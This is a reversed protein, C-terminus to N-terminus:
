RPESVLFWQQGANDVPIGSAVAVGDNVILPGPWASWEAVPQSLNTTTLLTLQSARDESLPRGDATRIVLQVTNRLFPPSLDQRLPTGATDPETVLFWRQAVGEVVIECLVVGNSPVLVGPWTSWIVSGQSLNTAFVLSMDAVREPTIPEGGTAGVTLQMMRESSFLPSDLTLDPISLDFCAAQATSRVYVRGNAIAPVNWCKNTTGHYDPIANFRALEVYADPNAEALVLDGKETLVLLRDDVLLTGGRGFNDVRWRVAGTAIDICTFQARVSDYSQIGFMGYLFGDKCVPTMWHSAPNNTWWLQTTTWVDNSLNARMAVSGMGYSHAGSVFVTDGYVVPSVGLSFSYSFPYDLDWLLEGTSPNVSALGSQTAFIVQPVGHLYVFVPTSHTMALNQSRWALSGDSTRLALLRETGSNANLYILGNHVLPSAANQWPILTGGYISTLDKHWVITGNTANLRYLNLYSTLVYVSDGDVVPTTRPGDDTGVGGDPYTAPDLPTAWLEGGNAASLAVCVEMPSGSVPRKEQTFVRGGSVTLSSLSNPSSVRWVPNTVAGTWQTQIRDESIGDHAPGRYQPWETACSLSTLAAACLLVPWFIFDKSIM